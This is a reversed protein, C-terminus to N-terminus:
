IRGVDNMTISDDCGSCSKENFHRGKYLNALSQGFVANMKVPDQWLLFRLSPNQQADAGFSDEDKLDVVADTRRDKTEWPSFCLLDGKTYTPSMEKGTNSSVRKM